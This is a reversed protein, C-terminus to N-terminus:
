SAIGDIGPAAPRLNTLAARTLARVIPFATATAAAIEQASLGFYRALVVCERQAKPLTGLMGSGYRDAAQGYAIEAIWGLVSASTSAGEAARRWVALYAAQLIEEAPAREGVIDHVVRLVQASTRDYIEAFAVQDGRATRGMLVRASAEDSGQPIQAEAVADM